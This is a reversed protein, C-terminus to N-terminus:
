PAMLNLHKPPPDFLLDFDSKQRKEVTGAAEYAAYSKSSFNLDEIFLIVTPVISKFFAVWDNAWKNIDVNRKKQTVVSKVM